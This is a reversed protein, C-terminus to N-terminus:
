SVHQPCPTFSNGYKLMDDKLIDMFKNALTGEVWKCSDVHFNIVM